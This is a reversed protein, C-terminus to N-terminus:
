TVIALELHCASQTIKTKEARFFKSEGVHCAKVCNLGQQCIQGQLFFVTWKQFLIARLKKARHNCDRALRCFLEHTDHEMASSVLGINFSIIKFVEFKLSASHAFSGLLILVM